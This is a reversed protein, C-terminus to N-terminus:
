FVGEPPSFHNSSTSCLRLARLVCAVNNRNM